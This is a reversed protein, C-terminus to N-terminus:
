WRIVVQTDDCLLTRDLHLGAPEERRRPQLDQAVEVDALPLRYQQQAPTPPLPAALGNVRAVCM